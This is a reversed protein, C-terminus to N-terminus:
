CKKSWIVAVLACHINKLAFFYYHKKRLTNPNKHKEQLTIM